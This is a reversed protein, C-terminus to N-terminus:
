KNLKKFLSEATKIRTPEPLMRYYVSCPRSLAESVVRDGTDMIYEIYGQSQVPDKSDVLVFDRIYSKLVDADSSGTQQVAYMYAIKLLLRESNDTFSAVKKDEPDDIIKGAYDDAAKELEGASSFPIKEDPSVAERRSNYGDEHGKIYAANIEIWCAYQGLELMINTYQNDSDANFDLNKFYNEPVTIFMTDKGTGIIGIIKTGDLLRSIGNILIFKNEKIVGDRYADSLYKYGGTRMIDTCDELDLEDSGIFIEASLLDDSMADAIHMCHEWDSDGLRTTYTWETRIQGKGETYLASLIM